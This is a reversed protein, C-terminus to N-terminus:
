DDQPSLGTVISYKTGTLDQERELHSNAVELMNDIEDDTGEITLIFVKKKFIRKM